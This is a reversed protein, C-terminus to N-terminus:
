EPRERLGIIAKSTLSMNIHFRTATDPITNKTMKDYFYSTKLWCIKICTVLCTRLPFSFFGVSNTRLDVTIVQKRYNRTQFNSISITCNYYM